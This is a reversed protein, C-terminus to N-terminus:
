GMWGFLASALVAKPHGLPHLENSPIWPLGVEKALAEQREASM